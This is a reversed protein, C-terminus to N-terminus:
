ADARPDAVSTSTLGVVEHGRLAELLPQFSGSVLCRLFSGDIEVDSVGSAREVRRAPAAGVFSIEVRRIPPQEGVNTV